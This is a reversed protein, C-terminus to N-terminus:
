LYCNEVKDENVYWLAGSVKSFGMASLLRMYARIQRVYKPNGPRYEGFKYDIVVAEDDKILVRDPRLVSGDPSIIECERYIEYRGSFWGYKEVSALKEHIYEKIEPEAIDGGVNGNEDIKSFYGHMIIGRNRMDSDDGLNGSQLATKLRAENAVASFQTPLQVSFEGASERGEDEYRTPEGASYTMAGSRERVDIKDTNVSAYGYLLDSISDPSVGNEPNDTEADAIVILERKARTFAVYALNLNDVFCCLKEKLYEEEFLTDKLKSSYEASLLGDFDLAESAADSWILPRRRGQPELSLKFYPIIVADFELGKSKHITMVNIAENEQSLQVKVESGSDYWWKLFATRNDGKKVSFELVADLFSQLSLLDERQRPSLKERIITECLTYLPLKGYKGNDGSFDGNDLAELQSVLEFVADSAGLKFAEISAVQYGADALVKAAAEADANYRVLVCIRSKPYGNKVLRNVSDLLIGANVEQGTQKDTTFNLEIYGDSKEWKASARQDAYDGSESEVGAARFNYIGSITHDKKGTSDNYLNELMRAAYGFFGNNFEVLDSSSRWNVSLTNVNCKFERMVENNLVRWDSNRWRYISQKVDGVVLNANGEAISNHLLPKFNEWQMLSTDQFEDIMFHNVWTGVKEYIFPTDSGDIIDHLLENTQSLLLINNEKCYLMLNSYVEGLIALASLNKKVKGCTAYLAYKERYCRMMAAIVGNLESYIGEFRAREEKKAWEDINEYMYSFSTYCSTDFVAEASAFKGFKAFPSRSRGKFSYLDLGGNEIIEMARKALQKICEKYSNEVKAVTNKLTQIEAMYTGSDTLCAKGRNKVKFNESNLNKSLELINKRIRWSKGDEISELSYKILWDLLKANESKDLSIFMRDVAMSILDSDNIEVNYTSMKGLERSFARMVGQFFTDITSINFASYDHLIRKLVSRSYDAIADADKNTYSIIEDIYASKEPTKSLLYLENLIRQKMQDTAKNTFTVALIHRYESEDSFLMKIYEGTLRFTKGSGASAKYIDIKGKM